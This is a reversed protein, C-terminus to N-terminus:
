TRNKEGAPAPFFLQRGHRAASLPLATYPRLGAAPANPAFPPFATRSLLLASLLHRRDTRRSCFTDACVEASRDPATCLPPLRRWSPFVESLFL